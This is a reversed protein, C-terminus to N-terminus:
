RVVGEYEGSSNVARVPLSHRNALRRDRLAYDATRRGAVKAGDHEAIVVDCRWRSPPSIRWGRGMWRRGRHALCALSLALLAHSALM